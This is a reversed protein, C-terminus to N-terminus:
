YQGTSKEKVDVICCQDCFRRKGRETHTETWCDTERHMSEGSEIQLAFDHHSVHSVSSEFMTKTYSVIFCPLDFSALM